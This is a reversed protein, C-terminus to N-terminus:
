SQVVANGVTLFINVNIASSDRLYGIIFLWFISNKIKEIEDKLQMKMVVNEKCLAIVNKISVKITESAGM